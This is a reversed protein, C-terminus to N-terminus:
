KEEGEEPLGIVFLVAYKVAADIHELGYQSSEEAQVQAQAIMRRVEAQIQALHEHAAKQGALYGGDLAEENLTAAQRHADAVTQKAVQRAAVIRRTVDAEELRIQELPTSKLNLTHTAEM